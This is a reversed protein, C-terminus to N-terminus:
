RRARNGRLPRFRTMYFAAGTSRGVEREDCVAWPCNVLGMATKGNSGIIRLRTNTPVHVIGIRNAADQFRFGERHELDARAFRFVIRAQEISAACLVSETGPRFLGDNPDMVRALVHAALRSKGNGRPLSLCSTDVGPSLAAALFERQFRRLSLM